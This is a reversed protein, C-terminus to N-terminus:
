FLFKLCLSAFEDPKEAHLWHGAEEITEITSFPFLARISILDDDKVYDSRSGRIFLADGEFVEWAEVERILEEYAREIADLNMGWALQGQKRILNKLLFQRVGLDPISRKVVEDVDNRSSITSFDVSHLANFITDHRRHYKRPAIDAVILKEVVEPHELAMHMALKGGMSHGLIHARDVGEDQMLELVDEAMEAFSFSDSHPSKGHNRLDLTITRFFPGFRTKAMTQWNGSAGLLGHIILLPFGSGFTQRFLKM